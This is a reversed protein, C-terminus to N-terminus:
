QGTEEHRGNKCARDDKRLGAARLRKKQEARCIGSRLGEDKKGTHKQLRLGVDLRLAPSAAEFTAENEKALAIWGDGSGKGTLRSWPITEFGRLHRDM